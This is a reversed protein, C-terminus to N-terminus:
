RAAFREGRLPQPTWWTVTRWVWEAPGFRFRRLWWWSALWQLPM